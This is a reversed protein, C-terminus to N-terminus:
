EGPRGHFAGPRHGRGPQHGLRAAAIRLRRRRALGPATARRVLEAFSAATVPEGNSWKAARLHFTYTLGDPSVEYREAVGPLPAGGDPNPVLVYVKVQRTAADATANVRSVKGGIAMDALGAVTLSVPMGATVNTVYASPVAAAFELVSTNVLRFMLDGDKIRDGSEVAREAIM